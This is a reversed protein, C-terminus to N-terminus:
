KFGREVNLTIDEIKKQYSALMDVYNLTAIVLEKKLTWEQDEQNIRAELLKVPYHLM